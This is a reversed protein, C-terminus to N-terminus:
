QRFDRMTMFEEANTPHLAIVGDFDKKRAGLRLSPALAQIIEPADSGVMHCGLVEGSGVEGGGREILKLMVRECSGARAAFSARLPVFRSEYVRVAGQERAEEESLGVSAITPSAFVARPLFHADFSEDSGAFLRRTLVEAQRIAVPTLEPSDTVDGLAYIGAVSTAFDADTIIKGRKDMAVGLAELGLGRTRARRGIAALVFDCPIPLDDEIRLYIEGGRKDADGAGERERGQPSQRSLGLLRTSLRCDVGRAAMGELCHKVIGRDFSRLLKDNRHLLTTQAGLANFIGACELAIYGGGLVVVREPLQELEFVADSTSALEGGVFGTAVAEALPLPECGTAVLVSKARLEKAQSKAGEISIVFYDDKRGKLSRGKLSSGSISAKGRFVGVGASACSEAYLAQLRAIEANKQSRLYNLSFSADAFGRWGFLRAESFGGRHSGAYVYLKKPICGRNVCTGGLTVEEVLATKAGYSAARRAARVGGSGAGLVCFDWLETM